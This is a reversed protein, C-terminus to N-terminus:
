QTRNRAYTYRWIYPILVMYPIGFVSNRIEFFYGILFLSYGHLFHLQLKLKINTIQSNIKEFNM